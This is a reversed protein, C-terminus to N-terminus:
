EYNGLKWQDEPELELGTFLQADNLVWDIDTPKFGLEDAIAYIDFGELFLECAKEIEEETM